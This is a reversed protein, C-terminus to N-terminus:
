TQQYKGTSFNCETTLSLLTMPLAEDVTVTVQPQITIGNLRVRKIGTFATIGTDLLNSGFSRFSVSRGDIKASKSSYFQMEGFMKRIKEGSVLSNGLQFTLPLTKATSTYSYGIQTSSSVRSLTFNGASDVTVDAHVTGDAIVSVTESQLGNAGAYTSATSSTSHFCDLYVDDSSLKELFTGNARTVLAYLSDDVECIQLFTGTTTWRTWGIVDREVNVGMVCLDGSNVVFLYNTNTDKYNKLYEIQTADTMMTHHVLSYNKASFADTNFNYVFARLQKGSKDIFMTENDVVKPEASGSKIGYRTQQRILVNSPTVPEGSMDFEGDTTFIFLAQQSILHKIINLEDSAITFTFGADDTVEGTTDSGTVVRTTSKFNFFDGSQSAFVTQPKDRSGGFILRNQHFTISRPYGGGKSAVLNSFATIEWENGTALQTDALDEEITAVAVTSNTVSTIKALGANIKIYMNIHGNPFSADVWTYTGSSLTFNVGSGTTAAPTLSTAFSFNVLPYFDFSLDGVAWDTHQSGRVLNIPPMDEQVMIMVDFTQAYRIDAINDTTIAFNNGDVGNTLTAVRSDLYYVHIKATTSLTSDAPEVVLVYEQGDGFKFPILRSQSHFSGTVVSTSGDALTSSDLDSSIFQFGRRRDIGGQPLLLFNECTDLGARYIGLEARGKMFTGIEGQTFSTQTYRRISM